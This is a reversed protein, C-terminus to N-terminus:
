PEEWAVIRAAAADFRVAARLTFRIDPAATRATCTVTTVPGREAIRCTLGAGKTGLVDFTVPGVAEAQTASSAHTRAAIVQELGAQALWRTQIRVLHRRVQFRTRFLTTVAVISAVTLLGLLVVAALLAMGRRKKGVWVTTM